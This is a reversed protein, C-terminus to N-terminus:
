SGVHAQEISIDVFQSVQHFEHQLQLLFFDPMLLEQLVPYKQHISSNHCNQSLSYNVM